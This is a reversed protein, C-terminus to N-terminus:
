PLQNFQASYSSTPIQHWRRTPFEYQLGAKQQINCQRHKHAAPEARLAAASGGTSSNGLRSPLLRAKPWNQQGGAETSLETM